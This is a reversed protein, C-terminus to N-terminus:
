SKTISVINGSTYGLTLTAELTGSAGGSKFEITTIDSGTYGFGVYDYSETIMGGLAANVSLNGSADVNYDVGNVGRLNVSKGTLVEHM